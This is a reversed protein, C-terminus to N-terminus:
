IFSYFKIRKIQNKKAIDLYINIVKEDNRGLTFNISKKFKDEIEYIPLDDIHFEDLESM